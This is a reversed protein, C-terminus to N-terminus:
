SLVTHNCSSPISMIKIFSTVYELMLIAVLRFYRCMLFVYIILQEKTLDVRSGGEWLLSLIFLLYSLFYFLLLSLCSFHICLFLSPKFSMFILFLVISIFLCCAYVLFAFVSASPVVILFLVSFVSLLILM